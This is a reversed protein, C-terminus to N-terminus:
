IHLKFRANNHHLGDAAVGIQGRIQFSEQAVLTAMLFLLSFYDQIKTKNKVEDKPDWHFKIKKNTQKIAM